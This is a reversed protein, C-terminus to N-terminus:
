LNDAARARTKPDRLRVGEWDVRGFAEREKAKRLAVGIEELKLKLRIRSKAL